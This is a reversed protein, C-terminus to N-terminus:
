WGFVWSALMGCAAAGVATVAVGTGRRTAAAASSLHVVPVHWGCHTARAFTECAYYTVQTYGQAALDADAEPVEEPPAATAVAEAAAAVAQATTTTMTADPGSTSPSSVAFGAAANVRIDDPQPPAGTPLSGDAAFTAIPTPRPAGIFGTQTQAVTGLTFIPQSDPAGTPPPPATGNMPSSGNHHPHQHNIYSPLISIISFPSASATTALLLPIITNIVQM